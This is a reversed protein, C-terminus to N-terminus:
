PWDISHPQITDSADLLWSAMSIAGLTVQGNFCRAQEGAEQLGLIYLLPLFHEPTPVSAKAAAGLREYNVVSEHEGLAILRKIEAEFDLAWDHAVEKWVVAALNHVINGSGIVLVGCRRLWGLSKGLAYHWAPPKNRDLSLQLVPIDAKPFLRYLLSWTGHDLGWDHDLTVPLDALREHILNALQPDGPAPYELDFLAQPFGRFDHLTAPQEMATIRTGDTEWHASICVIAKPKALARGLTDWRRSFINDEIANLPSGHGIFLAPMISTLETTKRPDFNATM